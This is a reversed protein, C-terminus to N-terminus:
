VCVFMKLSEDRIIISFSFLLEWPKKKREKKKPALSFLWISQNEGLLIGLKTM